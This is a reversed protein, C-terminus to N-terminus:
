YHPPREDAPSKGTSSKISNILMTCTKQLEDIQLQQNCAVENLERIIEEQFSLKTEIEIFRDESM